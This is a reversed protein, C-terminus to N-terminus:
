ENEKRIIWAAEVTAAAVALTAYIQAIKVALSADNFSYYTNEILNVAKDEYYNSHMKMSFNLGGKLIRKPEIIHNQL